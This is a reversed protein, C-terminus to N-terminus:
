PEHGVRPKAGRLTSAQCASETGHAAPCFLSARAASKTGRPAACLISAPVGSTTGGIKPVYFCGGLTNPPQTRALPM